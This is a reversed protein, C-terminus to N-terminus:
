KAYRGLTVNKGFTVVGNRLKKVKSNSPAVAKAAVKRKITPRAM